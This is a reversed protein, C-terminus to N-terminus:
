FYGAPRAIRRPMYLGATVTEDVVGSGLLGALKENGSKIGKRGIEQRM